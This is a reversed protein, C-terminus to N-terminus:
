NEKDNGDLEAKIQEGFKTGESAKLVEAIILERENSRIRKRNGLYPYAAMLAMQAKKRRESEEEERDILAQQSAIITDGFWTPNVKLVKYVLNIFEQLNINSM